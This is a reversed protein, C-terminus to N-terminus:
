RSAVYCVACPAPSQALPNAGNNSKSFPSNAMIIHLILYNMNWEQLGGLSRPIDMSTLKGSRIKLCVYFTAAAEVNTTTRDQPTDKLLLLLLLYIQSCTIHVNIRCDLCCCDLLGGPAAPVTQALVWTWLGKCSTTSTVTSLAHEMPTGIKFNMPRGKRYVYYM